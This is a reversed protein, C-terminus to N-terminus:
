FSEFHKLISWFAEFFDTIEWCGGFFWRSKVLWVHWECEGYILCYRVLCWLGDLLFGYIEWDFFNCHFSRAIIWSKRRKGRFKIDRNKKKPKADDSDFLLCCIPFINYSLSFYVFALNNQKECQIWIFKTFTHFNKHLHSNPRMKQLMKELTDKKFCREWLTKKLMKELTDKKFRRKWLTKKSADKGSHKKSADKGSHRKQLMKKLTYKQLMKELTDKKFCRKWLTKKSADKGSHKKQLMKELTNKQLMKELTDKKFCTKWLTKKFCTKWLTKKSADKGSHRKQLMKKLTYKQLTKELTDKKSCVKWLTKKFDKKTSLGGVWEFTGGGFDGCLFNTM